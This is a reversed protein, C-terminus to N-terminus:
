IWNSQRKCVRKLSRKGGTLNPSDCADVSPPPFHTPFPLSLLLHAGGKQPTQRRVRYKVYKCQCASVYVYIEPMHITPLPLNNRLSTPGMLIISKRGDAIKGKPWAIPGERTEWTRLHGWRLASRKM